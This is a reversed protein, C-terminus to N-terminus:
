GRSYNRRQPATRLSAYVKSLDIKPSAPMTQAMRDQESQLQSLYANLNGMPGGNQDSSQGDSRPSSVPLINLPVAAVAEPSIDLPPQWQSADPFIPVQAPPIAPSADGGMKRDAWSILGGATMDKLFPNAAMVAPGLVSGIPTSPDASLVGIAGKPGAFHALYQTGPTASFGAGQLVGANQAAYADTMDRSLKPDFKLALLEDRSKGQVLDPRNKSLMEIWTSDIFQGLGGASSRSNRAYPNGGSEAGTILDALAM